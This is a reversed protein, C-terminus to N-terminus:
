AFTLGNRDLLRPVAYTPAMLLGDPTRGDHGHIYDVAATESDVIYAQPTFGHKQAWDDGALLTASAGDSLPTSNAATMTAEDAHAGKTGFVPKLKALKEV